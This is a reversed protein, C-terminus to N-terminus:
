PKKTKNKAQPYGTTGSNKKFLPAKRWQIVKTAKPTYTTGIKTPGNRSVRKQKM